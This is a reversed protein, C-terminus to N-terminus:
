FAQFIIALWLGNECLCNASFLSCYSYCTVTISFGIKNEFGSSMDQEMICNSDITYTHPSPPFWFFPLWTWFNKHDKILIEILKETQKIFPQPIIELSLLSCGLNPNISYLLCMCSFTSLQFLFSVRERDRFHKNWLWQQLCQAFLLWSYGSWM